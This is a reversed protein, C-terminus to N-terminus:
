LVSLFKYVKYYIYLACLMTNSILFTDLSIWYLFIINAVAASTVTESAHEDPFFFTHKFM